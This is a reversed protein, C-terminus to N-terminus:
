KVKVLGEELLDNIKLYNSDLDKPNDERLAHISKSYVFNTPQVDKLNVAEVLELAKFIDGFENQLDTIQEEDLDFKCENALRKLEEKSIM